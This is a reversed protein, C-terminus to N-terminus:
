EPTMHSSVHIGYLAGSDFNFALKNSMENIALSGFEDDKYLEYATGM